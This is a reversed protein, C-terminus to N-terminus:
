HICSHPRLKCQDGGGVPPCRNHIFFRPIVALCCLEQANLTEVTRGYYTRAASALGTAGHGFYLNNIYVEFIRRKTHKVEIVQAYFIDHLKRTLTRGKNSDQMKVLQLTITSGGRVIQRGRANQLLASILAACDVGNHFYFRKDEAKIFIKKSLRTIDAQELKECRSGDSLSTVQLLQGQSDYYVTSYPRNQLAKLYDKPVLLLALNFAIFFAFLGLVIALAVRGKKNLKLM